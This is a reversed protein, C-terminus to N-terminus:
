NTMKESEGCLGSLDVIFSSVIGKASISTFIKSSLIILRQKCM